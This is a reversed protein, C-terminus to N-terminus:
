FQANFVLPYAMNIHGRHTSAAEDDPLQDICALLTSVEIELEARQTLESLQDFLALLTSLEIELAARQTLEPERATRVQREDPEDTVQADDSASSYRPSAHALAPRGFDLGGTSRPAPPSTPAERTSCTTATPEMSATPNSDNQRIRRDCYM